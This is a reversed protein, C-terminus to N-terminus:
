DSSCVDFELGPFVRNNHIIGRNTERIRLRSLFELHGGLDVVARFRLKGSRPANWASRPDLDGVASQRIRKELSRNFLWMSLASVLGITMFITWGAVNRTPVLDLLGDARRTAGRAMVENFIM